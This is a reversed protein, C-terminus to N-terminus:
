SLYFDAIDIIDDIKILKCDISDFTSPDLCEYLMQFGAANRISVNLWGILTSAVCAALSNRSRLEIVESLTAPLNDFSVADELMESSRSDISTKGAISALTRFIELRHDM